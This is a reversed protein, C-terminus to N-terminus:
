LVKFIWWAVRLLSARYRPGLGLAVLGERLVEPAQLWEGEAAWSNKAIEPEPCTGVSSM